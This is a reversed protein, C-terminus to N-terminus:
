YREGDKESKVHECIKTEKEALSYESIKGLHQNTILLLRNQTRVELDLNQIRRALLAFGDELIACLREDM